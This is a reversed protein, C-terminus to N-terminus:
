TKGRQNNYFPIVAHSHAPLSSWVRKCPSAWGLTSILPSQRKKLLLTLHKKLRCDPKCRRCWPTGQPVAPACARSTAKGGSWRTDAVGNQLLAAAQALSPEGTIHANVLSVVPYRSELVAVGPCLVLTASSSESLLAFSPLDVAADLAMGACHLAWEIRAEDGLFPKDALQPAAELFDAQELGWEAM